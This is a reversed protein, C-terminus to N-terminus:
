MRGGTMEMWKEHLKTVSTCNACLKRGCVCISQHYLYYCAYLEWLVNIVVERKGMGNKEYYLNYFYLSLLSDNQWKGLERVGLCANSLEDGPWSLHTRSSFILFHRLDWIYALPISLGTPYHPLSELRNKSSSSPGSLSRPPSLNNCKFLKHDFLKLKPLLMSLCLDLM